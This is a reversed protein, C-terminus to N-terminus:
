PWCQQMCTIVFTRGAYIVRSVWMLFGLLKELQKRTVRRCQLLDSCLVALKALEVPCLALSMSVSDTELGLAVKRQDPAETKGVGQSLTFGLGELCACADQWVQQCQVQDANVITVDDIVAVIGPGHQRVLGRCLAASFRGAVEPALSCVPM